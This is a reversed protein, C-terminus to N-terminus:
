RCEPRRVAGRHVHARREVVRDGYVARIVTGSGRLTPASYWSTNRSPSAQDSSGSSVLERTYRGNAVQVLPGFQLRACLQIRAHFLQRVSWRHQRRTRSVSGPAREPCRRRRDSGHGRDDTRGAFLAPPNVLRATSASRHRCAGPLQDVRETCPVTRRPAQSGGARRSERHRTSWPPASRSWVSRARSEGLWLAPDRANAPVHGGMASRELRQRRKHRPRWRPEAARLSLHDALQGLRFLVSPFARRRSGARAHRHVAAAQRRRGLGGDRARRLARTRPCVRRRSRGALAENAFRIPKAGVRARGHTV